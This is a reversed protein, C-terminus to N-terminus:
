ESNWKQIGHCYGPKDVMNFLGMIFGFGYLRPFNLSRVTVSGQFRPWYPSDDGFPMMEPQHFIIIYGSIFHWTYIEYLIYMYVYIYITITIIKM